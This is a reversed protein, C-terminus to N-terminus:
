KGKKIVMLQNIGLLVAGIGLLIFSVAFMQHGFLSNNYLVLLESGIIGLSAIIIIILSKKKM